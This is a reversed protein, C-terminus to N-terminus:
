GITPGWFVQGTGGIGGIPFGTCDTLLNPFSACCPIDSGGDFWAWYGDSAFLTMFGFFMEWIIGGLPAIPKYWSCPHIQPLLHVGNPPVPAGPCQIIGGFSVEVFAPTGAAFPVPVCVACDNGVIYNDTIPDIGM